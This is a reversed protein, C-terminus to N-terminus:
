TKQSGDQQQQRQDGAGPVEEVPVPRRQLHGHDHAIGGRRRGIDGALCLRRDDASCNHYNGTCLSKLPQLHLCHLLHVLHAAGELLLPVAQPTM